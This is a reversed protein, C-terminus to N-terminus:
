QLCHILVCEGMAYDLYWPGEDDVKHASPITLSYYYKLSHVCSPIVKGVVMTHTGEICLIGTLCKGTMISMMLRLINGEVLHNLSAYVYVYMRIAAIVSTQYHIKITDEHQWYSIITNIM